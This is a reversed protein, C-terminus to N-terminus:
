GTNPGGPSQVSYALDAARTRLRRQENRLGAEEALVAANAFMQAALVSDGSALARTGSSELATMAASKDGVQYYLNAALFLDQRAQPDEHQRLQAAAVYLSAADAWGESTMQLRQAEAEFEAALEEGAIPATQADVPTAVLTAAVIATGVWGMTTRMMM